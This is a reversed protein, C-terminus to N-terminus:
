MVAQSVCPEALSPELRSLFLHFFTCLLPFSPPFVEGCIGVLQGRPVSFRPARLTPGAARRGAELSRRSGGASSGGTSGVGLSRTSTSPGGPGDESARGPELQRHSGGASPGGLDRASTGPGRQEEGDMRAGDPIAAASVRACDGNDGM